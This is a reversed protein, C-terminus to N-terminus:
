SRPRWPASPAATAPANSSPAGTCFAWPSRSCTASRARGPSRMPWSRSRAPHTAPSVDLPAYPATIPLSFLPLFLPMAEAPAAGHGALEQELRAIKGSPDSEQDLGLARELLDILPALASHQTDPSCRAELSRHPDHAIRDRLERALRSKGIGPEGTVLSSQGSGERARRWCEMLAGLERERGSIPAGPDDPTPWRTAGGHEEGLRFIAIGPAIGEVSGAAEPELDFATRLLAQSAASAIV